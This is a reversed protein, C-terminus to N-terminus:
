FNEGVRLKGCAFQGMVIVGLWLKGDPSFAVSGFSGFIKPFVSDALNAETFNVRRLSANTFDASKIVTRALNKGELAANNHKLLLTVANGGVYGVEAETKGRTAEIINVLRAGTTEAPDLMPLLLDLVAKALPAKGFTSPLDVQSSFRSLDALYDSM